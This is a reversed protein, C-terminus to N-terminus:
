LGPEATEGRIETEGYSRVSKLLFLGAGGFAVALLATLLVTLLAMDYWFSPPFLRTMLGPASWYDNTFSLEHFKLFLGDFNTLVLIATVALLAVTLGGGWALGRGLHLWRRRTRDYLSIAGYSVIYTLSVLMLNRDLQVLSKVDRFHILEKETFVGYSVGNRVMAIYIYDDKSNFYNPFEYAINKLEAPTLGTTQSVAYKKFGYSYIEPSGIEWSIVAGLCFIPISIILFTRGVFHLIKM